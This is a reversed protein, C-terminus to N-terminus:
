WVVCILEGGLKRKRAESGSMVGESTSIVSIGLGSRVNPIDTSGVYHRIGPRSVRRLGEIISKRGDFKLKLRLIRKAAFGEVTVESVYGERRLVHSISEKMRSYPLEVVPILASSANRIRTLLDSITDNM